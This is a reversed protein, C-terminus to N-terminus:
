SFPRGNDTGRASPTQMWTSSPRCAIWLAPKIWPSKLGELTALSLEFRALEVVMDVEIPMLRDFNLVRATETRAVPALKRPGRLLSGPLVVLM